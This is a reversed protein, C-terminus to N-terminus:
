IETIMNKYNFLKDVEFTFIATRNHISKEIKCQLVKEPVGIRSLAKSLQNKASDIKDRRGGKVEVLSLQYKKPAFSLWVGDFQAEEGDRLVKIGHWVIMFYCKERDNNDQQELMMAQIMADVEVKKGKNMEIDSTNMTDLLDRLSTLVDSQGYCLTWPIHDIKLNTYLQSIIEVDNIMLIKTFCFQFLSKAIRSAVVPSVKFVNNISKYLSHQLPYKIFQLARYIDLVRSKEDKNVFFFMEIYQSKKDTWCLPYVEHKRLGSKQLRTFIIVDTETTPGYPLSFAYCLESAKKKAEDEFSKQYLEQLISELNNVTVNYKENLVKLLSWQKLANEPTIYLNEVFYKNLQNLMRGRAEYLGSLKEFLAYETRLQHIITDINLLFPCDHHESLDLHLYALKRIIHFAVECGRRASDLKSNAFFEEMVDILQEKETKSLINDRLLRWVALVYHFKMWDQKKIVELAFKKANPKFNELLKNVLESNCYMQYCIFKEAIHLDKLHGYQTLIFWFKVLDSKSMKKESLRKGNIEPINSALGSKGGKEGIRMVSNMFVNLYDKRTAKSISNIGFQKIQTLRNIELELFKEFTPSNKYFFIIWGNDSLIRQPKTTISSATPAVSENSNQM